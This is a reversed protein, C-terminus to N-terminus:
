GNDETRRKMEGSKWKRQREIGDRIIQVFVRIGVALAFLSLLVVAVFFIDPFTVM